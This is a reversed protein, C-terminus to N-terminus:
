VIESFYCIDRSLKINMAQIIIRFYQFKLEM